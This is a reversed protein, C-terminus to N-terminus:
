TLGVCSSVAWGLLLDGSSAALLIPEAAAMLYAGHGDCVAVLSGPGQVVLRLFAARRM